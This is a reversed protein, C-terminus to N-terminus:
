VYLKENDQNVKAMSWYTELGAFYHDGLDDDNVQWKLPYQIEYKNKFLRKRLFYYYMKQTINMCDIYGQRDDDPDYIGIMFLVHVLNMRDIAPDEGDLVITNIFPFHDLDNRRKKKPLYQKHFNIPALQGEVNKLRYSDFLRPLEEEVLFDQLMLPTM